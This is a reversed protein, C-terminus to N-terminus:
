MITPMRWLKRGIATNVGNPGIANRLSRYGIAVNGDSTTANELAQYGMVTNYLGSTISNLGKYGFSTNTSTSDILGATQNNVKFNLPQTDITGIFNASTTGTNGDLNWKPEATTILREWTTGNFYYYGVGNGGTVAANTNYILLGTASTNVGDLMTDTVDNLSVQPILIGKDTSAIDLASSADPATTGIGVQAWLNPCLLLFVIVFILKRM